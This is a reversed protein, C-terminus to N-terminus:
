TALGMESGICKLRSAPSMVTRQFMIDAWLVLTDCGLLSIKFIKMDVHNAKVHMGFPV